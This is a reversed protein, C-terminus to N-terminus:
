TPDLDGVDLAKGKTRTSSSEMALIKKAITAQDEPTAHVLVRNNGASTIRCTASAKYVDQMSKAVEAATGTPVTDIRLSAEGVLGPKADKSEQVDIKKLISEAESVKDAPGTVLVTNTKENSAVYHMRPTKEQPANPQQWQPRQVMRARLLAMPDGLLE